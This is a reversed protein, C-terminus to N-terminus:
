PLVGCIPINGSDNAFKKTFALLHHSIENQFQESEILERLKPSKGYRQKLGQAGNAFMEEWEKSSYKPAFVAGDYGLEPMFFHYYYTQGMNADGEKASLFTSFSLILFVFVSVRFM